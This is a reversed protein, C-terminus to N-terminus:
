KKEKLSILIKKLGFTFIYGISNSFIIIQWFKFASMKEYDLELFAIIQVILTIISSVLFFIINEKTLFKKIM